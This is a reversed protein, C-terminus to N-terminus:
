NILFETKSLIPSDFFTRWVKYYSKRRIYHPFKQYRKDNSMFGSKLHIPSFSIKKTINYLKKTM